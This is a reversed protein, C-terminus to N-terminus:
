LEVKKYHPVLSKMCCWGVLYAVACYGFVIAYGAPKGSYGFFEMAPRAYAAGTALLDKTMVVERGDPLVTTGAAYDFLASALFNILAGGAGAACQAIGTLTATTSKPFMDGVVSYM